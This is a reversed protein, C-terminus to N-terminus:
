NNESKVISLNVKKREQKLMSITIWLIPNTIQCQFLSMLAIFLYLMRKYYKSINKDNNFFVLALFLISFIGIDNTLNCFYTSAYIKRNLYTKLVAHNLLNINLLEANLKYFSNFTGLGSGFPYNFINTLALFNLILRTSGSPEVIFLFTHLDIDNSILTTFRVIVEFIRNTDSFTAAYFVGGLIISPVAVLFLKKKYFYWKNFWFLIVVIFCLFSSTALSILTNMIFILNAQKKSCKKHIYHYEGFIFFLISFFAYYSPEPTIVSIGRSGFGLSTRNMFFKICIILPEFSFFLLITLIFICILTSLMFEYTVEKITKSLFLFILPGLLYKALELISVLGLYPYLSIGYSIIVFILLLTIKKNDDIILKKNLCLTHLIKLILVMVSLIPFTEINIPFINIYM